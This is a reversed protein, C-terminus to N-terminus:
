RPRGTVAEIGVVSVDDAVVVMRGDLAPAALRLWGRPIERIVLGTAAEYVMVIGKGADAPHDRHGAAVLLKANNSFGVSKPDAAQGGPSVIPALLKQWILKRTTVDWVRVFGDTHGTVVRDGSPSWGVAGVRGVPTTEDHHLRRGTAADFLVVAN